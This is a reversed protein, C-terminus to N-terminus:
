KRDQDEDEDSAEAEAEAARGEDEATEAVEDDAQASAPEAEDVAPETVGPEVATDADGAPAAEAEV